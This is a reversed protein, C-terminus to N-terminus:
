SRRTNRQHRHQVADSFASILPDPDLLPMTDMPSQFEPHWQVGLVFDQGKLRIAEIIGDTCSHAEAVFDKALQKIAQHHVSNIKFPGHGQYISELTSGKQIEVDHFNQDYIDWDRHKFAGSVQTGIDQYLSGGFAVNLIQLGRCIGLIPKEQAMFERVLAIEYADRVPDGSWDPHLATEGYSQPAVDAGGQLILGDLDDVYDQLSLPCHPPIPPILFTLLGDRMLWNSMPEVLYLLTKGKFIPRLPDAHMFCASIGIRLNRKQKKSM